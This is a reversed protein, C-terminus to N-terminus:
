IALADAKLVAAAAMDVHVSDRGANKALYMAQDARKLIANASEEEGCFVAVGISTTVTHRVEGLLVPQRLAQLVKEALRHAQQPAESPADALEHIVLVFEDGGLRAVTDSQRVCAQLRRAVQRLLVDGMDHGLTDNIAKFRDLDLFMLAACRRSRASARQAQVLRDMLLRRNPLHTLADYFAFEAIQADVAKRESIDLYTGDLRAPEGHADRATVKGRAHIWVWHGLKHRVRYDAVYADSESREHVNRAHNAHLLDEPHMRAAWAFVDDVPDDPHDGVMQLARTNVSRTGAQIDLSWLGLDAGALALDVKEAHVRLERERALTLTVVVRQHRQLLLLGAVLLLGVVAYATSYLATLQRWPALVAHLDRSVALYLPQDMRLADPQITRYAVMREDGTANVRGVLLSESRGTALHRKLFTGAQSLDQGVIMKTAENSPMSIFATGKGHVITSRMDSAYLVSRLLVQFYAPDLTATVIGAFPQQPTAWPKVLNVSYAKLVTEFPRSVLLTKPDPASGPAPFYPRRLVDLGLVEPRNSALVKGQANAILMTRVGPMADSLVKLRRSSDPGFGDAALRPMDDRVSNLAANAGDLQQSLNEDIVRAQTLLRESERAMTLEHERYVLYALLAGAVLLLLGVGWWQLRRQRSFEQSIRHM